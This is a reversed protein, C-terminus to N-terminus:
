QLLSNCYECETIQGVIVRNNAGCGKCIVIKEQIQSAPQRAHHPQVPHALVIERRSKDIYAGSFYGSDIMRALDNTVGEFTMEVIRAINDISTIGQNVILTIYQRYREGTIQMKKSLRYLVVGGCGCLLAALLMATDETIAMILYIFCMAILGYSVIAITKGSKFTAGRDSSLRRFLLYLGLPWFLILCGVIWGWHIESRENGLVGGGGTLDVDSGAFRWRIGYHGLAQYFYIM